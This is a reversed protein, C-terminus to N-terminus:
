HLYEALVANRCADATKRVVAIQGAIEADSAGAQRMHDTLYALARNVHQLCSRRMDQPARRDTIGGLLTTTVRQMLRKSRAHDARGAYVNAANSAAVVLAPVPDSEDLAHGSRALGLLREAEDIGKLYFTLAADKDGARFAANGEIMMYRWKEDPHPAVLEIPHSGRNKM